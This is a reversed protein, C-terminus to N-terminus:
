VTSPRRYSSCPLDPLRMPTHRTCLLLRASYRTNRKPLQAPHWQVQFLHEAFATHTKSWPIQTGNVLLRRKREQFRKKMRKALYSGSLGISGHEAFAKRDDYGHHGYEPQSYLSIYLPLAAMAYRRRKGQIAM